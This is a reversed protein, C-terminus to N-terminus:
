PTQLRKIFAEMRAASERKMSETVHGYQDLTFAATHHGLNEQVTKVDDGARLSSVAYTHRLDHLRTEPAGIERVLKKFYRWITCGDLHGGLEDTFVLGKFDGEDWLVGARLRDAAQKRKHDKLIQMVTPAPTIIRAKDNKLSGFSWKGAKKRERQLQKDITIAGKEFDVCPWQLGILEGRRMGTFLDVKFLTEFKHGELRQLLASIDPSDLPKMPKKVVRPLTCADCPNARLYGLKVAQALAKHLVGHVNRVTKANLGERSMDNYLKQIQTGNLIRLKVAGIAPKLHNKIHQAYSAVTAPKVSGIYEAHWTNLWQSVTMKSPEMYTGEDIATTAQRLAKRVEDQTSGYVSRRIQQGSGPDRGVTYRAEWRGDPRQRISGEHNARKSPM